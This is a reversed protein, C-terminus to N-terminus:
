EESVSKILAGLKDRLEQSEIKRFERIVSPVEAKSDKSEYYNEEPLLVEVKVSLVRAIKRLEDFPIAVRGLEYNYMKLRTVGIEEALYAQTYGRILRVERVRQGIKSDIFDSRETDDYKNSSLQPVSSREKAKEAKKRSEDRIQTSKILLLITKRLEPDDIKKYTETINLIEEVEDQFCSGENFVEPKPLLDAISKSLAKAIAYLRKTPIKCRGKEYQLILWYRVGIKEALEAQTYGRAIRCSKIQQGLEYDTFDVYETNDYSDNLDDTTM